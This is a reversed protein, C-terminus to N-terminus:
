PRHLLLLLRLTEDITVTVVVILIMACAQPIMLITTTTTTRSPALVVITRRVSLRRVVDVVTIVGPIYNSPMSAVRYWLDHRSHRVVVFAVVVVLV